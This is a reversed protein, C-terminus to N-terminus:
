SRMALYSATLLHCRILSFITSIRPPHTPPQCPVNIRDSAAAAQMCWYWFQWILSFWCPLGYWLSVFRFWFILWGSDSYANNRRWKVEWKEKYMLNKKRKTGWKRGYSKTADGKWKSNFAGDVGRRLRLLHISYSTKTHKRTYFLIDVAFRARQFLSHILSHKFM